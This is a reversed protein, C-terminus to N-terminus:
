ATPPSPFTLAATIAKNVATIKKLVDENYHTEKELFENYSSLFKPLRELMPDINSLSLSELECHYDEGFNEAEVFGIKGNEFFFLFFNTIKGEESYELFSREDQFEMGPTGLSSLASALANLQERESDYCNNLRVLAQIVSKLISFVSSLLIEIM